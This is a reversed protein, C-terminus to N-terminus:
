KIYVILVIIIIMIYFWYEICIDITYKKLLQIFPNDSENYSWNLLEKLKIKEVLDPEM